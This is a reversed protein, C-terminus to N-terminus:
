HTLPNEKVAKNLYLHCLISQVEKFHKIQYIKVNIYIPSIVGVVWFILLAWWRWFHGTAKQLGEEAGRKGTRLHGDIETKGRYNPQCKKSTNVFPIVYKDWM